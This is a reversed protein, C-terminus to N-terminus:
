ETPKYNHLYDMCSKNNKEQKQKQEPSTNVFDDNLYFFFMLNLNNSQFYFMCQIYLYAILAIWTCTCIFCCM